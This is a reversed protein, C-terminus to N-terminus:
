SNTSNGSGEFSEETTKVEPLNKAHYLAAKFLSKWRTVVPQSPCGIPDLKAQRIQNKVTASKVKAILQDANESHSKVKMAGNHLLHAVSAM